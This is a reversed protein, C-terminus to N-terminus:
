RRTSTGRSSPPSIRPRFSRTASRSRRPANSKRGSKASNSRGTRIWRRAGNRAAARSFGWGETWLPIHMFLVVPEGKAAEQKWFALQKETVHYISNDIAVFRIGKVVHSSMLPDRGQYLPLLRKAIWEERQQADSGSVGEFHWDHNGSVYYWDIGCADLESKFYEVNALTPFSLNDGVFLLLDPKEAKAKALMKQFPAKETVGRAMRAYNKAYAADRADSLGFHTDGIVFVRVEKELGPLTIRLRNRAGYAFSTAGSARRPACSTVGAGLTACAAATFFTRRSVNKM